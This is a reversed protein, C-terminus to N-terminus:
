SHVTNTGALTDRWCHWLAEMRLSTSTLRTSHHCLVHWRYVTGTWKAQWVRAEDTWGASLVLFQELRGAPDAARPLPLQASAVAHIAPCSAYHQISDEGFRCGVLCPGRQGFRRKTCWANMMARLVAFHCRPAVRGQLARLVMVARAARRGPLTPNRWGRLPKEILQEAIATAVPLLDQLQSYVTRQFERRVRTCIVTPWPRQTSNAISSEVRSITIGHRRMNDRNKILQSCFAGDYWGAWMVSRVLHDTNRRATLLQQHLEDLRLFHPHCSLDRLVRLRAAQARLMLDPLELPFGVATFRHALQMPCWRYPGPFLKRLAFQEHEEWAPPPDDLQVLFQLVPFIYVRYALLSLNTGIDTSGWLDIRNRFKAFAQDFSLHGRTPGLVFGLYKAQHKLQVTAWAPVASALHPRHQEPDGCSLPVLVTKRLNLELGSCLAFERMLSQMQPVVPWGDPIVMTLDDAYARQTVSPHLRKVRRLLVDVAVAFVLPSLPCGQRIGCQMEFGAVRHGGVILSCVNRVYLNSIFALIQPPLGIAALVELLFGHAVSPFAAAFDYFIAVGDEQELSVQQMAFDVEIINQLMSRGPLFGKQMSTVRSNMVEESRFRVANAHIRNERNTVNIPRVESAEGVQGEPLKPLFIM